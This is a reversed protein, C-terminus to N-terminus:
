SLLSTQCPEISKTPQLAAPAATIHTANTAVLRVGILPAQVTVRMDKRLRHAAATAQAHQGIPFPQEIHMPTRLGNDLEIDLCLVPVTHGDSDLVKSRVQAGHLLTGTYEFDATAAPQASTHM